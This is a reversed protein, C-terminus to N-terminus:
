FTKDNQVPRFSRHPVQKESEESCVSGAPIEGNAVVIGARGLNKDIGWVWGM